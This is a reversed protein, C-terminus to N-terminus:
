RTDEASVNRKRGRKAQTLDLYAVTSDKGDEIRYKRPDEEASCKVYRDEVYPHKFLVMLEARNPEVRNVRITDIVGKLFERRKEGTMQRLESVKRGFETIWDIWREATEIDRLQKRLDIRSAEINGLELRLTQLIGDYRNKEDRKIMQAAEATGILQEIRSSEADLAKMRKKLVSAARKRDKHLGRSGITLQKIEEKYRHSKSLVDVVTGWLIEDTQEIRLYLVQECRKLHKSYPDDRLREHRPCYYVARYQKPYYRGSLFSECKGCVLFDRLLYFQRLNSEVVRRKKRRDRSALYQEHLSPSIIPDCKITIEDGNRKDRVKYHGTFHSNRMLFELSGTSWIRNGGRPLVGEKILSSRIMQISKGKVYEEFIFRVWKAEKPDPVLRRNELRYGFPTRGGIWYGERLRSLKGLRSREARLYNDYSSIESLIGLLLKDLPNSLQFMGNSTYLRVDNQLLKLRIASWTNENRSLRDTNFVWIHKAKGAEIETLLAALVPRNGLDDHKSSQGGENWVKALMGLEKAKKTGLEKQTELSTGEDEQTSTSVRTYIHLIESL